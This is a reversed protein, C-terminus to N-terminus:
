SKVERTFCPHDCRRELFRLCANRVELPLTTGLNVVAAVYGALLNELTSLQGGSRRQLFSKSMSYLYFYSFSQAVAHVTKSTVGTYLATPGGQRLLRLIIQVTDKDEEREKVAKKDGADRGRTRSVLLTKSIELPYM